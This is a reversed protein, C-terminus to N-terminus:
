QYTQGKHKLWGGVHQGAPDHHTWHIVGGQTNWEYEGYFQITDGRKLDRVRPALDINHSILVTQEGAVRVIMKQHRSGENDDRLVRVVEGQGEVQVDSLRLEFAEQLANATESASDTAGPINFDWDQAYGYLLVAAVVFAILKKM